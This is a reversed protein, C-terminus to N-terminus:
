TFCFLTLYKTTVFHFLNKLVSGLPSVFSQICPSRSNQYPLHGFHYAAWCMKIYAASYQCDNSTYQSFPALTRANTTTTTNLAPKRILTMVMDGHDDNYNDSTVRGNFSEKTHVAMPEINLPCHTVNLITSSSHKHQRQM